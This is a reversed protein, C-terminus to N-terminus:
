YLKKMWKLKYKFKDGVIEILGQFYLIMLCDRIKGLTLGYALKKIDDVSVPNIFGKMLLGIRNLEWKKPFPQTHYEVVKVQKQKLGLELNKNKLKANEKKLQEIEKKLTDIEKKNEKFVINSDQLHKLEQLIQIPSKGEKEKKIIL